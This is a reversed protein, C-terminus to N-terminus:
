RFLYKFFDIISDYWYKPQPELISQEINKLKFSHVIDHIQKKDFKDANNTTAIIWIDNGSLVWTLTDITSFKGTTSDKFMPDPKEMLWDYKMISTVARFGKIEQIKNTQFTLHSCEGFHKEQTSNFCFEKINNKQFEILEHDTYDSNVTNKWFGIWMGNRGTKDSDIMVGGGTVPKTSVIEWDSPYEISFPYLEDENIFIEGSAIPAILGIISISLLSIALIKM